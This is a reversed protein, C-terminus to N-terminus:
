YLYIHRSIHTLYFRHINQKKHTHVSSDTHTQTHIQTRKETHAHMCPSSSYICIRTDTNTRMSSQINTISKKEKGRVEPKNTKNKEKKVKKMQIKKEKDIKNRNVVPPLNSFQIYLFINKKRKKKEKVKEKRKKKRKSSSEFQHNALRTKDTWLEEKRWFKVKVAPLWEAKEISNALKIGRGRLAGVLQRQGSVDSFFLYWKAPLSYHIRRRSKRRRRRNRRKEGRPNLNCNLLKRVCFLFSM